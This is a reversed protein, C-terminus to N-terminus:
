ASAAVPGFPRDAPIEDFGESPSSGDVGEKGHLHEVLQALLALAGIRAPTPWAKRECNPSLPTARASNSAWAGFCRPRSRSSCRTTNCSRSATAGRTTSTSAGASTVEVGADLLARRTQEKNDVVLGFHRARDPEQTRGQMLAIFQDGMDIFAMRAGRGRLTFEFFRGYFELAEDVDGVELAVHNIGVLRARTM